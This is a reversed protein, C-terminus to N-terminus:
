VMSFSWNLERSSFIWKGEFSTWLKVVEIRVKWTNEQRITAEAISPPDWISPKFAQIQFFLCFWYNQQHKSYYGTHTAVTWRPSWRKQKELHKTLFFTRPHSYLVYTHMYLSFMLDQGSLLPLIKTLEWKFWDYTLLYWEELYKINRLSILICKDM